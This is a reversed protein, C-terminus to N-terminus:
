PGDDGGGFFCSPKVCFGLTKWELPDQPTETEIPNGTRANIPVVHLVNLPYEFNTCVEAFKEEDWQSNFGVYEAARTSM